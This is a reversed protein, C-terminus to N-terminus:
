QYHKLSLINEDILDIAINLTIPLSFDLTLNLVGYQQFINQRTVIFLYIFIM